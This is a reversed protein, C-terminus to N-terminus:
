ESASQELTLHQGVKIAVPHSKGPLNVAHVDPAREGSDDAVQAVGNIWVTRAGDSRQVIGNLTLTAPRWSKEGSQRVSERELQARQAPTTFLRGLGEAHVCAAFAALLVIAIGRM